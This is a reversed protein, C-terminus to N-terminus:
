NQEHLLDRMRRRLYGDGINMDSEFGNVEEWKKRTVEVLNENRKTARLMLNKPTHTMDIFELIQVDYGCADLVMARYADTVIGTMRERLIGYKLIPELIQNEIHDHLEHQCCPVSLLVDVKWEVSKVIAEDTATDCAHLTVVLDVPGTEEHDRIDGVQFVLGEYGLIEATRNCFAVVDEKLDLGIISVPRGLKRVFFDYLAFTLYAKGCGFDVIRLPRGRDPMAQVVDEVFELFRNIQRFKDYRAKIIKGEATQVGLHVLYDVPVGEEILYHKVRNHSLSLERKEVQEKLKRVTLRCGDGEGSFIKVDADLARVDLQKFEQVMLDVLKKVAESVELNQHTVRTKEHFEFQIRIGEKLQVPKIMVKLVPGSKKRGSLTAKILRNGDIWVKLVDQLKKV